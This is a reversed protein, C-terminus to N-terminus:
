ARPRWLFVLNYMGPHPPRAGIANQHVIQYAARAFGSNVHGSAKIKLTELLGLTVLALALPGPGLKRSIELEIQRKQYPAGWKGDVLFNEFGM